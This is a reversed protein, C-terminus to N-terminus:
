EQGESAESRTVITDSKEASDNLDIYHVPKPIVSIVLARLTDDRGEIYDVQVSDGKIFMGNVFRADALKLLATDSGNAVRATILSDKLVKIHVVVGKM